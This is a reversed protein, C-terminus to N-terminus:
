VENSISAPLRITLRQMDYSPASTTDTDRGHTVPMDDGPASTVIKAGSVRIDGSSPITAALFLIQAVALRIQEATSRPISTMSPLIGLELRTVELLAQPTGVVQIESSMGCAYAGCKIAAGIM